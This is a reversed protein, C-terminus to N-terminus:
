GPTCPYKSLITRHLRGLSLTSYKRIINQIQYCCRPNVPMCIMIAPTSVNHFSLSFLNAFSDDAAGGSRM